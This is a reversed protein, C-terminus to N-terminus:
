AARARGSSPTRSSRSSALGAGMFGDQQVGALLQLESMASVSVAQSCAVDVNSAGASLVGARLPSGAAVQQLPRLSSSALQQQQPQASVLLSAISGM